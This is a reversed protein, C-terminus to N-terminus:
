TGSNGTGRAKRTAEVLEKAAKAIIHIECPKQLFRTNGMGALDMNQLETSYGSTIIVGLEPCDARLRTALELGNMEEPMVMDTILLDIEKTHEMWVDLAAKGSVTAYVKYGRQRLFIALINRVSADDEAVLITGQGKPLERPSEDPLSQPAGPAILPLYSTFSSGKGVESHVELWGSHQRIIGDVTALGLGTGKGVEKTTFFPEFIHALVQEDMGCGTDAVILQAFDGARASPNSGPGPQPLTVVALSIRLTGREGMADRANVSLNMVVQEMMGTDAHVMVPRRPINIEIRINESILRRLMKSMGHICAGLDIDSMQMMSRRSFMLLQRTLSAARQAERELEHLTEITEQDRPQEKLLGLNLLMAALINNFDHAIGGALQGIAEMKQAQRLSDELKLFETMDTAVGIFSDQGGEPDDIRNIVLHVRLRTQNKRIMTWEKMQLDQADAMCRFVEFGVVPRNLRKELTAAHKEVESALHWLLPTQLGVVEEAKYGLKEEAGTSFFSVTGVSDTVVIILGKAGNIVGQLQAKSKRLAREREEVLALMRNLSRALHGIEGEDTVTARLTDGSQNSFSQALESIDRVPKLIRRTLGRHLILGLLSLALVIGCFLVTWATLRKTLSPTRRILLLSGLSQDLQTIPACHWFTGGQFLGPESPPSAPINTTLDSRTHAALLRGETDYLASGILEKDVMLLPLLRAADDINGFQLPPRLAEQWVMADQEAQYQLRQRLSGAEYLLICSTLILLTTIGSVLLLKTLVGQLTGSNRLRSSM